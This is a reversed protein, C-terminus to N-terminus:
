LDEGSNGEVIDTPKLDMAELLKTMQQITKNLESVSDNKKVGKQGGGNNWEITVGREEIDNELMKATTWLAMYNDVMDLYYNPAKGNTPTLQQILSFKLTEYKESEKLIAVTLKNQKKGM